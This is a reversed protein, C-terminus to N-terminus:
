ISLGVSIILVVVVKGKLIHALFDLYEFNPELVAYFIKKKQLVGWESTFVM